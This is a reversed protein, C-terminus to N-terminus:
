LWLAARRTLPHFGASLSQNSKLPLPKRSFRGGTNKSFAPCPVCVDLTPFEGSVARPNRGLHAERPLAWARILDPLADKDADVEGTM